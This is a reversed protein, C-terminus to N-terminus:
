SLTHSEPDFVGTVASAEPAPPMTATLKIGLTDLLSLVLGVQSTPKGREVDVIFRVGVNAAM